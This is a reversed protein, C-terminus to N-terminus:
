LRRGALPVPIVEDREPAAALALRASWAFTVVIALFGIQVGVLNVLTGLAFPSAVLALLLLKEGSSAGREVLHAAIIALPVTLIAMEYDFTYPTLLMTGAVLTAGALPVPGSRRWVNVTILLATLAALSQGVYAGQQGIGLMRLFVFGSPM